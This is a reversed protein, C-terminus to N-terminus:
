YRLTVTIYRFINIWKTVQNGCGSSSKNLSLVSWNVNLAPFFCVPIVRIKIVLVFAM